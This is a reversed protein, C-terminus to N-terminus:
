RTIRVPYGRRELAAQRVASWDVRNAAPGAAAGVREVLGDPLEYDFSGTIEIQDAQEPTPHAELYLDDRSWALKIPQNVVTVKTGVPVQPYLREVHEPYMRICGRSVRRGIGQPRNTGHILYAPWGLYLARTGLPNDPGPPVAAPLEPNDARTAPTPYWTPNETKRKIETTGSPTGLGERGVGIPFSQVGGNEGFFYLRMEPLNIVIGERPADPLIHATPLVIETGEGPVWPDVAPNAAVLEVYGLDFRLALEAFTDEYRTRYTALQGVIIPEAEDGALMEGDDAARSGFVDGLRVFEVASGGTPVLALVALWAALFRSQAVRRLMNKFWSESM